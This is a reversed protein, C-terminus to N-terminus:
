CSLLYLQYLDFNYKAINSIIYKKEIRQSIIHTYFEKVAHSHIASIDINYLKKFNQDHNSGNTKWFDLDEDNEERKENNEILGICLTAKAPM